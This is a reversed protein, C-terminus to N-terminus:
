LIKGLDIIDKSISVDNFEMDNYGLKRYFIEATDAAHIKIVEKGQQKIWRELLQMIHRAYGKNKDVEDTALSRISVESENLFEVAAVSVIKDRKYLVFHYHKDNTITPHNEDYVIGIPSFIQERRIRHYEQWERPTLVMVLRFGDWGSKININAIFSDKGSTYSMRDKSFKKSLGLKLEAYADKDEQNNIMWDRFKLHREIESNGQEYIHINHTKLDTDKQFFRRFPIGMEGRVQYDTSEMEKFQDDVSCINKVVAIIDIIPKASLGPVSTSGIHHIVICNDGLVEKLKAAETEFQEPWDKRYPVVEIHKAKM